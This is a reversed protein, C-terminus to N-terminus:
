NHVVKIEVRRNQQRGIETDNDAVPVANGFGRYKMRKKDIGSEVLFDYVSEARSVSLKKNYRDSGINDTHGRIEISLRNEAKLTGALIELSAYSSPLLEAQNFAFYIKPLTISFGTGANSISRIRRIDSSDLSATRNAVSGVEVIRKDSSANDKSETGSDAQDTNGLGTDSNDGEMSERDENNKNEAHSNDGSTNKDGTSLNDQESMGSNNSNGRENTNGGETGSHSGQNKEHMESNTNNAKNNESTGTDTNKSKDTVDDSSLQQGSTNNRNDSSNGTQMESNGSIGDTNDTNSTHQIGNKDSHGNSQQDTHKLNGNKGNLGHQNNAALLHEKEKHKQYRNYHELYSKSDSDLWDYGASLEDQCGCEFNNEIEFIKLDDIYYYAYNFSSDTLSDGMIMYDTKPNPAFNGITLFRERGRARFVGCLEHWATKNDMFHPPMNFAMPESDILGADGAKIKERTFSAGLSNIAFSSKAALAYQLRFCYLKRYKLAQTLEVQLYERSAESEYISDNFVERLILGIYGRGSAAELTGAFNDPVGADGDCCDHFYDPTGKNPNCWNPILERVHDQTYTEPCTWAAEFDANPILQQASVSTAAFVFICIASLIKHMQM